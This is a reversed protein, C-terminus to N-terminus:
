KLGNKKFCDMYQRDTVQIHNILWQKLYEILENAFQYNGKIVNYTYVMIESSFDSHEEKHDQYEPYDFAKMYAEETTFHTLTYDTMERLVEKLEEPNDKHGKADIVKNIIGFLKKHEEDIMSIGVSYNDNWKIM